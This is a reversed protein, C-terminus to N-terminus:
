TSSKGALKAVGDKLHYTHIGHKRELYDSMFKSTRGHYCVFIHNELARLKDAGSYILEEPDMELIRDKGVDIIKSIRGSSEIGLWVLRTGKEDALRIAEELGLSRIKLPKNEEMKGDKIWGKISYLSTAMNSIFPKRHM